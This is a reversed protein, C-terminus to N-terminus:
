STRQSAKTAIPPLRLIRAANDHLVRARAADDGETAMLVKAIGIAQHYFPWDSGYVVRDPPAEDLIRRVNPLSQGSLSPRPSPQMPAFHM